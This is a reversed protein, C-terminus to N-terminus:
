ETSAPKRSDPSPSCQPRPFERHDESSGRRPRGGGRLVAAGRGRRPPPHAARGAAFQGLGDRGRLQRLRAIKEALDRIRPRDANGNSRASRRRSGWADAILPEREFLSILPAGRVPQEQLPERALATIGGVRAGRAPWSGWGLTASRWRPRVSYLASVGRPTARRQAGL